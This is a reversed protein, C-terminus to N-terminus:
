TFLGIGHLLAVRRETTQGAFTKEAKSRESAPEKFAKEFTRQHNAWAGLEKSWWDLAETVGLKKDM